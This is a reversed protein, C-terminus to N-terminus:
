IHKKSLHKGKNKELTNIRKNKMEQFKPNLSCHLIHTGVAHGSEFHEHCYQCEFRHVQTKHEFLKARTEFTKQCCNCIWYKNKM